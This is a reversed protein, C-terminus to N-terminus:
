GNSIIGKEFKSLSNQISVRAAGVTPTESQNTAMGATLTMVALTAGENSKCLQARIM